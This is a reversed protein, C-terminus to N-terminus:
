MSVLGVLLTVLVGAGILATYAAGLLGFKLLTSVWGERYVRKQMLLLYLPMWVALAISLAAVGDRLLGHALATQLLGGLALLFVALSLFAHSHLAVILHEMYLRRRFAYALKLLLAFVPLLVFLTQPLLELVYEGLRQRAGRDGRLELLNDVARQLWRNLRANAADPLWALQLPNQQPHWVGEGLRLELPTARREATATPLAAEPKPAGAAGLADLRAQAAQEIAARAAALGLAVGPADTAFAHQAGFEGLARDRLAIVESGSRAQSFDGGAALASPSTQTAVEAEPEVNLRGALFAMLSIFVFLRVPSVYRVRRGALYELSLFGPRLLLPGLTRLLRGDVNFVTDVFDGLVSRFHRVLGRAPQGCAHCHLGQLTASCNGCRRAPSAETAPATDSDM